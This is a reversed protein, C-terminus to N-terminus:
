WSVETWKRFTSPDNIISLLYKAVDARSIKFPHHLPTAISSRYTGNEPSDRLYPVGAITWDLDTQTILSVMKKMDRYASRLMPEVFLKMILFVSLSVDPHPNVALSAVVVVLRRPGVEQTARAINLVGESYITTSKPRGVFGITSVVADSGSVAMKVSNIDFVDGKVIKVEPFREKLVEPRRALATIEHGEALAKEILKLGTGRTGGFVSLKM